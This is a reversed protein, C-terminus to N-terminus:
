LNYDGEKVAFLAKFNENNQLMESPIGLETIKENEIIGVKECLMVSSLRHSIIISTRNKLVSKWARHIEEETESDLASTAEDFIIIKPNKLYIRAIAIRQKQGGSLGVGNSGIITNIGDPLTSIFDWIGASQCAQIIEEETAHKNGLLLNQKISGELIFIDQAVIGINRRISELTCESLKQGDIEIYGSQPSFLGILLYTLTSKGCGSKGVIAFKEGQNIQLSLNNLISKGNEYKFFVNNFKINGKTIDLKRKGKWDSETDTNAFDYVKQIYAIRNQTDLYSGSIWNIQSALQEFYTIAVTLIGITMHNNATLIAAFSFIGLQTCLNVLKIIEKATIDSVGLKNNVNFMKRHNQVFIRNARKEAGLMRIHKVASLAEYIWSIYTGFFERENDSYGRIKGGMVSNIIVSAPVAVLVFIGLKWSIIFFYITIVISNIVGNIQHIINRIVFHMCETSYDQIIAMVEGSNVGSLYDATCEQLHRFMDRKIDFTYMTMLYHHQAYILFYLLCSFICMVVIVSSIQFFTVIHQYYIIEDLMLGFLIPIVISLVMDIFWGIYFMIFHKKYKKIYKSLFKVATFYNLKKVKNM